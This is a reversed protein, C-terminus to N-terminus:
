FIFRKSKWFLIQEKASSLKRPIENSFEFFKSSVQHYLHRWRWPFMRGYKFFIYDWKSQISLRRWKQATSFCLHKKVCSIEFDFSIVDLARKVNLFWYGWVRYLSPALNTMMIRDHVMVKEFWVKIIIGFLKQNHFVPLLVHLVSNQDKKSQLMSSPSSFVLLVMWIKM